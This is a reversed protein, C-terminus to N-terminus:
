IMILIVIREEPVSAMKYGSFANAKRPRCGQTAKRARANFDLMQKELTPKAMKEEKFNDDDHKKLELKLISQLGISWILTTITWGM